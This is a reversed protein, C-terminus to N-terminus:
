GERRLMRGLWLTGEFLLYLPVGLMIQSIVDPPTVLAATLFILFIIHGRYYAVRAASVVGTVILIFLALPFQLMLGAAIMINFLLALYEKFSWLAEIGDGAGFFLFFGFVMPAMFRYSLGAGIFFLVPVVFLVAAAYRHESGRLGPSLFLWAQLCFFPATFVAGAWFALRMYAMFIDTPAFAHLKIQFADLPAILFAAIYSSFVFATVAAAFFVVLVAIIRRRLEELHEIWEEM